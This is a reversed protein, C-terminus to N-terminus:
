LCRDTCREGATFFNGAMPFVAVCQLRMLHVAYVPFLSEKAGMSKAIAIMEKSDAYECIMESFVRTMDMFLRHKCNEANMVGM